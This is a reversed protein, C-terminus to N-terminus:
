SRYDWIGAGEVQKEDGQYEGVDVLAQLRDLSDAFTEDHLISAPLLLSTLPRGAVARTSVLDCLSSAANLSIKHFALTHLEPVPILPRAWSVPGDVSLALLAIFPDSRVVEDTDSRLSFHTVHPFVNFFTIWTPQSVEQGSLLSVILRRLCPFRNPNRLQPYSEPLNVLDAQIVHDIFLCALAPASIALLVDDIFPTGDRDNVFIRLYRLSPLIISSELESPLYEGFVDGVVLCTLALNGSLIDRLDSWLMMQSASLITLSTVATLPPICFHLGWGEIRVTTLSPAGGTFIHEYVGPEYDHAIEYPSEIQLSQLLPVNVARLSTVMHHLVMTSNRDFRASLQRCRTMHSMITEWQVDAYIYLPAGSESEYESHPSSNIRINFSLDLAFSGSRQLYSLVKEFPTTLSIEIRTWLMRTNIAVARFRRNIQSLVIEIPPSSRSLLHGHEFVASLLENPLSSLSHIQHKLSKRESRLHLRVVELDRTNQLIDLHADEIKNELAFTPKQTSANQAAM